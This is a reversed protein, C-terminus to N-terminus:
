LVLNQSPRSSSDVSREPIANLNRLGGVVARTDVDSFNKQSSGSSSFLKFKLDGLISDLTKLLYM